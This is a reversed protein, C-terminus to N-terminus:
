IHVEGRMIYYAPSCGGSTSISFDCFSISINGNQDNAVHVNDTGDGSGFYCSWAGGDDLQGGIYVDGSELMSYSSNSYYAGNAPESAFIFHLDGYVCNSVLEFTGPYTSGPVLADMTIETANFNIKSLVVDCPLSDLPETTFVYDESYIIETSSVQIFSRIHYSTGPTLNDVLFIYEESDTISSTKIDDNVDPLTDLSWCVGIDVTNDSGSIDFEAVVQMAENGVAEFHEIEATWYEPGKKLCGSFAIGAVCAVLFYKTGHKLLM